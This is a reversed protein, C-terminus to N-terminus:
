EDIIVTISKSLMKKLISLSKLTIKKTKLKLFVERPQGTDGLYTINIIYKNWFPNWFLLYYPSSFAWASWQNISPNLNQMKVKIIKSFELHIFDETSTMERYHVMDKSFFLVGSSNPIWFSKKSNSSIDGFFDARVLFKHNICDKGTKM